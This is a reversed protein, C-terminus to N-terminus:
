SMCVYNLLHISHSFHFFSYRCVKFIKYPTGTLKLKKVIKFSHNLETVVGTASMRFSAQASKTTQFALIGTNPPTIPGFFTALCHMHEPTYKLFRVRQNRDEMSYVPMSQFRRWGISFILPDYSKLIRKHWRHKKLRVQTFGLNQEGALLGGLILPYRTDFHTMLECPVDRLTIRVYSGSRAGQAAFREADNMDAFEEQNAKAQKDVTAKLDDIYDPKNGEEDGKSDYSVNFQDKLKEKAEARRKAAEEATEGDRLDNVGEVTIGHDEGGKKKKPGDEDDDLFSGGAEDDDGFSDMGMAAIADLPNKAGAAMAAMMAKEPADSATKRAGRTSNAGSSGDTLSDAVGRHTEETWDGTVFRNRIDDCTTRDEWARMTSRHMNTRFCDEEDPLTSGWSAGAGVGALGSGNSAGMASSSSSAGNSSTPARRKFFSDGDEDDDDAAAGGDEEDDKKLGLAAAM